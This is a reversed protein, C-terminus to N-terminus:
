SLRVLKGDKIKIIVELVQIDTSHAGVSGCGGEISEVHSSVPQHGFSESIVHVDSLDSFKAFYQPNLPPLWGGQNFSTTM